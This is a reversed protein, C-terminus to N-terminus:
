QKQDEKFDKTFAFPYGVHIHDIHSPDNDRWLVVYHKSVKSLRTRLERAFDDPAKLDYVRIDMACGQRHSKGVPYFPEQTGTVTVVINMEESIDSIINLVQRMEDRLLQVKVGEAFRITM